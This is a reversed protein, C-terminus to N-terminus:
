GQRQLGCALRLCTTLQRINDANNNAIKQSSSLPPMGGFLMKTSSTQEVGGKEDVRKPRLLQKSVHVGNSGPSEYPRSCKAHHGIWDVRLTFWLQIHCLSSFAALLRPQKKYGDDPHLSAQLAAIFLFYVNAIKTAPNFEEWLFRPLFDYYEYKATRVM